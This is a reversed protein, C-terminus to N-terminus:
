SSNRALDWGIRVSRMHAVEKQWRIKEAGATSKVKNEAHAIIDCWRRGMKHEWFEELEPLTPM